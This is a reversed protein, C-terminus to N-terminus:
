LLILGSGKENEHRESGWTDPAQEDSIYFRLLGKNIKMEAQRLEILARVIPRPIEASKLLVGELTKGREPNLTFATGKSWRCNDDFIAEMNIYYVRGVEGPNSKPLPKKWVEGIFM